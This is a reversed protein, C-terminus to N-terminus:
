QPAFTGTLPRIYLVAKGYRNSIQLNAVSRYGNAEAFRIMPAELEPEFGLLLAAPPDKLFLSYIETPSTTRYYNRLDDGAFELSRYGSRGTALEPYLTLGAELPYIPFLTAIKGTIGVQTLTKAIATGNEHVRSTTWTNPFPLQGMHEFLRPLNITLVVLSAVVLAPDVRPRDNQDLKGYLLALLLPMCAIPPTFYQPFSPTPLFSVVISMLFAASITLIPGTLIKGIFQGPTTRLALQFLLLITAFIFFVNAGSFWTLFALRAKQGMSMVVADESAAQTFWYATHPGTHFWIIHALFRQLDTALYLLIPLSGILGGVALPAVVRRLRSGFAIASPLFFAAIAVPPIFGSASIKISAALGLSLGSFFILLPSAQARAVGLVFLGLGLYSFPLPLFNNTATMGTQNLLADNSLVLIVAFATMSLSRTIRYTILVVGAVFILWGVFVTLRAALLLHDTGLVTMAIHFLWASGPVHSYFIDRYLDYNDLLVAPPAYLLEDRRLEFNMLRAFIAILLFAGCTVGALAYRTGTRSFSALSLVSM